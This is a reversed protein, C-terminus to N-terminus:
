GKPSINAARFQGPSMGAIEKFRRIFYAQSNFGVEYCLNCCKKDTNVLLKMAQEVRMNNLYGILTVGMQEKFLHCLRWASLNVEYAIDSIKIPRDFHAEIFEVATKTKDAGSQDQMNKAMQEPGRSKIYGKNYGSQVVIDFAFENRRSTLFPNRTLLSHATHALASIPTQSNQFFQNSM